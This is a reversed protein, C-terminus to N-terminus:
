GGLQKLGRYLEQTSNEFRHAEDWFSIIYDCCSVLSARLRVAIQVAAHTAHAEELMNIVADGIFEGIVFRSMARLDKSTTSDSLTDSHRIPLGGALREACRAIALNLQEVM